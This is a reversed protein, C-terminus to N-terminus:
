SKPSITATRHNSRAQILEATICIAIEEPSQAGIKLGIPAHVQQLREETVGEALLSAFILSIKRKSGIMGIYAPDYKLAARLVAHDFVHGRTLIALYSSPTLVLRDLVEAFPAVLLEDALPFRERNCFEARDDLVLVRFGIMKALPALCSSIHGAGFLYLVDQPELPEIFLTARGEGELLAAEQMALWRRSEKEELALGSIAGSTQGAPGLFVHRGANDDAMGEAVLTVLVGRRGTRVAESVQQFLAATEGETPALYEIYVDVQGGCIMQEAQAVELGTMEVHHLFSRRDAFGQKARTVVEYELRGGGITGRITGDALVLCSTGAARPASGAQRIIRALAVPQGKQM